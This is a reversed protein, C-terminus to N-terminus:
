EAEVPVTTEEPVTPDAPNLNEAQEQSEYCKMLGREFNYRNLEGAAYAIAKGNSDVFFSTPLTKVEFDNAASADVDYYVPFTYGSDAIMQDAKERTEREDSLTNIMLFYVQQKYDNYASQFMALERQSPGSWSAWFNIVVPKGRFEDLTHTNGDADVFSINPADEREKTATTQEPETTEEPQAQQDKSGPIYDPMSAVQNLRDRDVLRDFMLTAALFVALAALSLIILKTRKRM